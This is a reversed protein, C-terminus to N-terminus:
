EKELSGKGQEDLESEVIQGSQFQSAREEYEVLRQRVVFSEEAFCSFLVNFGFNFIMKIQINM